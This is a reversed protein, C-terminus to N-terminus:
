LEKLTQQLLDKHVVKERFTYAGSKGSKVAKIIKVMNKSEGVNKGRDVKANKSVKAM